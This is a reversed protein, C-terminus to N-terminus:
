ALKTGQSIITTNPSQTFHLKAEQKVTCNTKYPGCFEFLPFNNENTNSTKTVSQVDKCFGLM